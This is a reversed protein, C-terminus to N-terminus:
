WHRVSDVQQAYSTANATLSRAKEIERMSANIREEFSALRASIGLLNSKARDLLPETNNLVTASADLSATSNSLSTELDSRLAVGDSFDARLTEYDTSLTTFNGEIQGIALRIHVYMCVYM